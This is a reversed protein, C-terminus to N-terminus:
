YEHLDGAAAPDLFVDIGCRGHIDAIPLEECQRWRRVASRKSAGTVMAVVMCSDNLVAKSLSVRESPPKPANMVAHVTEGAAYDLGPFLSASHGDEGMGLLVMDFPRAHRIVESYHRAAAVPGLEAPIVHVNHAPIQVHDLWCQAAMVSNREPHDSPLCREDGFYIHWSSWDADSSALVRYVAQPTKGGALVISFRGQRAIAQRAACYIRLSVDDILTGMDPIVHWRVLCRYCDERSIGALM